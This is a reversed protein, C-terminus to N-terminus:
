IRLSRLEAQLEKILDERGSMFHSLWNVEEIKKILQKQAQEAEEFAEAQELVNKYVPQLTETLEPEEAKLKQWAEQVQKEDVLGALVSIWKELENEKALARRLDENLRKIEQQAARVPSLDRALYIKGRGEPLPTLKLEVYIPCVGHLPQITTLGERGATIFESLKHGLVQHARRGLLKLASQNVFSVRDEPDIMFLAQPLAAAVSEAVQGKKLQRIPSYRFLIYGILALSVPTLHLSFNIDPRGLYSVAEDILTGVILPALCAAIIIRAQIREYSKSSHWFARWVWYLGSLFFLLYYLVYVPAFLRMSAYYGVPLATLEIRFYPVFLFIFFAIFSPIHFLHTWITDRKILILCFHLFYPFILLLGLLAAYYSCWAFIYISVSATLCYAVCMAGFVVCLGLYARALKTGLRYYQYVGLIICALGTWFLSVLYAFYALTV